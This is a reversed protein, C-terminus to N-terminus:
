GKNAKNIKPLKFQCPKQLKNWYEHRLKNEKHTKTLNHKQSRESSTQPLNQGWIIILYDWIQKIDIFNLVNKLIEQVHFHRSPWLSHQMNVPSLILLFWGRSLFRESVADDLWSQRMVSTFVTIDTISTLYQFDGGLAEAFGIAGRARHCKRLMVTAWTAQSKSDSRNHWM